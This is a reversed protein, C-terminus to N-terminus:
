NCSRTLIILVQYPDSIEDIACVPGPQHTDSTDIEKVTEMWRYDLIGTFGPRGSRINTEDYSTCVDRVRLDQRSNCLFCYVNRYIRTPLWSEDLYIQSFSNCASELAQDYTEWEGTFNCHTIEPVICRGTNVEMSPPVVSLSCNSLIYNLADMPSNLGNLAEICDTSIPWPTYVNVGHCKACHQNNYIRSTLNDTVWIFDEISSQLKGSCKEELPDDETPCSKTIYYRPVQNGIEYKFIYNTDPRNVLVPDCSELPQKAIITQKDVCCNGRKWCDDACSCHGCCPTQTTDQLLKTENSTCYDTYPCLTNPSTVNTLVSADLAFTGFLSCFCTLIHLLYTM